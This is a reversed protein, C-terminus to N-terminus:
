RERSQANREAECPAFPRVQRLLEPVDLKLAALDGVPDRGLVKAKFSRGDGLRVDFTRRNEIVHDNTLMLGDPRIMVGSGGAIFVFAHRVQVCLAAIDPTAEAAPAARASVVSSAAAVCAMWAVCALGPCLRRLERHRSM